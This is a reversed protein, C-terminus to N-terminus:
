SGTRSQGWTVVESACANMVLFDCVGELKQRESDESIELTVVRKGRSSRRGPGVGTRHLLILGLGKRSGVELKWRTVNARIRHKGGPKRVGQLSVSGKGIAKSKEM